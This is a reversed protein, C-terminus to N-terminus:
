LTHIISQQKRKLIWLQVTALICKWCLFFFVFLCFCLQWMNLTGQMKKGQCHYSWYQDLVKTYLLRFFISPVSPSFLGCLLYQLYQLLTVPDCSSCAVVRLLWCLSVKVERQMPNLFNGKQFSLLRLVVGTAGFTVSALKM